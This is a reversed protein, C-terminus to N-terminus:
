MDSEVADIVCFLWKGQLLVLVQQKFFIFMQKFMGAM